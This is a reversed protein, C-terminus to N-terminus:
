SRRLGRRIDSAAREMSQIMACPDSLHEEIQRVFYSGVVVGDAFQAIRTAQEASNIGFGVGIPLRSIRRIAEVQRRVGEVDTLTAGTVGTLSVYYLFGSASRTVLRRREDSSTPALLRIHHLHERRMVTDFEASEEPPLDVILAGDADAQKLKGAFKEYGLVYANNAYGMLVIGVQPFAERVSRALSFVDEMHIGSALARESAAQIVPGDAMPDSFPMGIELIDVHKALMAMLRGSTELDPDGATLYGILAARSESAALKFHSSLRDTGNLPTM